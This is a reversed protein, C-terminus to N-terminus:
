ADLLLWTSFCGFAKILYNRLNSDKFSCNTTIVAQSQQITMAAIWIEASIIAPLSSVTHADYGIQGLSARQLPMADETLGERGLAM